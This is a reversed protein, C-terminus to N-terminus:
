GDYTCSVQERGVKRTRNTTGTVRWPSLLAEVKNIFCLTNSISNV